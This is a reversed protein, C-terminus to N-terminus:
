LPVLVRIRSGCQFKLKLNQILLISQANSLSVKRIIGEQYKLLRSCNIIAVSESSTRVFIQNSYTELSTCDEAWVYLISSPLKPLARLRSCNRLSLERLMSLQCISDPLSIFKNGSLNLLQLSSLSSLDNPIAGDLLNCDSLDLSVLSSLGSFSDPLLLSIPGSSEKLLLCCCYLLDWSKPPLDKCGHFSLKRLKTMHLISSPFERIATESADLEELCKMGSLNEPMKNLRSCGSLILTKLASLRCLVSPLILLNKCDKLSLLIIGSLNEFSPPLETIATGDLYLKLLCTMDEGIEPFKKLRSCGCLNLIELSELNIKGPFSDLSKCDQLNLLILKKLAGISPHIKFLRLCGRLILRELNPVESFNPTELLNKSDSVDILKLKDLSKTGKWLQKICSCHMKLEVLKTPQFSAPMFKLPYGHWEMICLENPLYNLGEPLQVNGIKLLRMRKMRTFAEANLYEEQVHTNLVIGEVVESGTNTKLVHLIDEYHWLRSRGGPERLSEHRVIEKGLEQLLNHMLLKGGVITILSKDMLVDINSAPYCDFSQLIDRIHDIDEGKFFCAIDLFLKKETDKLKDYSIKLVDLINGIHHEKLQGQVSKWAHIKRDFLSSGLVKLALPLGEAYNVFDTCLGVYNEDPYLKKFSGWCFLQLAEKDNLMKAMYINDDVVHRKLLHRDRSTIIIRSGPGFWELKGALAELQEESDVDDLVILVKKNRLRKQMVDIGEHDGGLKIQSEMLLKSLLKEQLSVLHSKETEQRVNAIFSSAEFQYSIRAHIVQAITTKGIGGMGCIGVFRVDDLGVCFYKELLEEVRSEIGFLDKSVSSIKLERLIRAIIEQIVISHLRNDVHWGSINGVDRLADKWTQVDEINAKQDKEHKSFAEGITGTQHRVESPEVHYFIPLVTMEMEKKCGIIKALEILCWKSTAYNKSLVTIAFQSKEIVKLLELSIVKGRELEKDDRFTNIGKQKLAAYLYDIFSNCTDDGHFSLYVDYNWRPSSSSSSQSSSSSASAAQTAM